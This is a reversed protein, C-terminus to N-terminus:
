AGKSPAKKMWFSYRLIMDATLITLEYLLMHLWHATYMGERKRKSTIEESCNPIKQSDLESPSFDIIALSGLLVSFARAKPALLSTNTN